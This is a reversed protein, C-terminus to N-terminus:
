LFLQLFSSVLLLSFSPFSFIHNLKLFIILFCLKLFLMELLYLDKVFTCFLILNRAPGDFMFHTHALDHLCDCVLNLSAFKVMRVYNEQSVFLLNVFQFGWFYTFFFFNTEVVQEGALIGFFGLLPFLPSVLWLHVMLRKCSRSISSSSKIM